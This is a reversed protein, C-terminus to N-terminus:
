KHNSVLLYYKIMIGAIALLLIASLVIITITKTIRMWMPKAPNKIKGYSIPSRKKKRCSPRSKAM